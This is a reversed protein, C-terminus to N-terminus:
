RGAAVVLNEDSRRVNVPIASMMPIGTIPDYDRDTSSLRGTNSGITRVDSDYKPADGWSHAM